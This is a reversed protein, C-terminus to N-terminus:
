ETLLNIFYITEFHTLFVHYLNFGILFRLIARAVIIITIHLVHFIFSIISTRTSQGNYSNAL